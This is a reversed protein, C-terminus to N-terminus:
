KQTEQKDVHLITSDDDVIATREDSDDVSGPGRPYWGASEHLVIGKMAEIWVPHDNLCPCRILEDGGAQRFVDTAERGLEDITELCDTTFGPSVILVRRVGQGALRCLTAETYPNLWVQNRFRSQYTILWQDETLGLEAALLQATMQVHCQYPDGNRVFELPYGHFSFLYKQPPRQLKALEARVIAAQARIYDRHAYFPPVIRIAPMHRQQRLAYFLRDCASGTAAASYQPYMPWVVLREIGSQCLERVARDISPNGYRMGFRVMFEHPLSKALGAVQLRTIHLLPSGTAADWIRAYKQASERSRRPLVGLRLVFWWKWPPVEIVRPDELFERLYRRVAPRTPEDPTGLQILLVAIRAVRTM